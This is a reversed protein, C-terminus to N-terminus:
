ISGTVLQLARVLYFYPELNTKKFVNENNLEGTTVELSQNDYVRNGNKSSILKAFEGTLKEEGYTEKQSFNGDPLQVFYTFRTDYENIYSFNPYSGSLSGSNFAGANGGKIDVLSLTTDYIFNTEYESGIFDLNSGTNLTQKSWKPEVQKIKSRELIHPKIIIGTSMSTRAPVFDKIMKFLTNDYFKVLRVFDKLDYRETISGSFTQKAFKFLSNYKNVYALRPDGIYDDIDFSGTILSNDLLYNDISDTPSFGVELTHLDQVYKKSIPVVSTYYSFTDGYLVSGTNDIRIKDLSSTFSSEPGFYPTIESNSGGYYRIKLLDKPIGFTNILARLGRETGKSKLLIPINHYIRKYIQKQYDNVPTPLNSATIFTNIDESGTQYFEGSFMSFLNEFSIDSGYLKIGFGRLADAVLEKSIGFDLRNDGNYRDSLGKAYLWLNDFFEGIMDIFLNYPANNEDDKIYTPVSNLLRNPNNEDYFSASLLQNEFWTESEVTDIDQNIYPYNSGTKPWSYSGSEFYLFREYHDFNQVIGLILNEYYQVSGTVISIDVTEALKKSNEFEQVKGLKYKFNQLRESASSFHVFNEFDTHDIGLTVGSQNVLNYTLYNSGTLTLLLDQKSVFNTPNGYEELLEVNFNPGRLEPFIDAPLSFEATFEYSITDSLEENVLFESKLDFNDPLPEYLKVLLFVNTDGVTQNSINIAQLFNNEGFNLRITDLYPLQEFRTKLENSSSLILENPVVLSSARIETRDPSLNEIFFRGPTNKNLFFSDRLFRYQFKVDGNTYGFTFLDEEPNIILTSVNSTETTGQREVRYELYNEANGLYTGDLSYYHLEVNDRTVDFTSNIEYFDLLKLDGEQLFQPDQIKNVTIKVENSM